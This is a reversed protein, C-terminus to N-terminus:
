SLRGLNKLSEIAKSAIAEWSTSDYRRRVFIGFAMEEGKPLGELKDDKSLGYAKRDEESVFAGAGWLVNGDIGAAMEAVAEEVKMNVKGFGRNKGFGIKLLGDNIAQITLAILGLQWIEFNELVLSTRLKGQVLTEMDFPSIAANTLRSIAVGYRTETKVEGEPYADSFSLRGRLRTNGYMKCAFCSEKYVKATDETNEVKKGCHDSSFPDCAFNPKVTRLVKETFSRFVGKLSSGPIFVVEGQHTITRVFQMDPLSPNPSTSGSKILLPSQPELILVLKMANWRRKHM